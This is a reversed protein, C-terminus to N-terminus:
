SQKDPANGFSILNFMERLRSRVTHVLSTVTHCPIQCTGQGGKKSKKLVKAIFYTLGRMTYVKKWLYETLADIAEGQPQVLLREITASNWL